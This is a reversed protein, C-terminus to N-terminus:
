FQGSHILTLKKQKSWSKIQRERLVADSRNLFQQTYILKISDFQKTYTSNHNQHQKLRHTLNNTIGTYFKTNDCLLIYLYWM